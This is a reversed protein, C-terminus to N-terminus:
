RNTALRKPKIFFVATAYHGIFLVVRFLNDIGIGAGRM